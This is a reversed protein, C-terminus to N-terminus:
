YPLDKQYKEAEFFADDYLAELRERSVSVKEADYREALDEVRSMYGTLDPKSTSCWDLITRLLDAYRAYQEIFESTEEEGEEHSWSEQRETRSLLREELGLYVFSEFGEARIRCFQDGLALSSTGSTVYTFTGATGWFPEMLTEATVERTLVLPEVESKIDILGSINMAM